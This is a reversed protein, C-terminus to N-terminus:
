KLRVYINLFTTKQNITSFTIYDNGKLIHTFCLIATLTYTSSSKESSRVVSKISAENIWGNDNSAFFFFSNRQNQIFFVYFISIIFLIYRFINITMNRSHWTKSKKKLLQRDWTTNKDVNRLNHYLVIKNKSDYYWMTYM